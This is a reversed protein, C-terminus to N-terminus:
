LVLMDRKIKRQARRAANGERRLSETARTGTAHGSAMQAADDAPEAQKL